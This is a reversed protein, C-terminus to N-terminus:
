KPDREQKVGTASWSAIEQGLIWLVEAITLNADIAQDYIVESVRARAANVQKTRPHITPFIPAKTPTNM